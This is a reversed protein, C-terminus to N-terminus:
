ETQHASCELTKQSSWFGSSPGNFWPLVFYIFIKCVEPERLELLLKAHEGSITEQDFDKLGTHAEFPTIGRWTHKPTNVLALTMEALVACWNLGERPNMKHELVKQQIGAELAAKVVKM